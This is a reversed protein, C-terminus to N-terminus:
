TLVIRYTLSPFFYLNGPTGTKTIACWLVGKTSSGLLANIPQLADRRWSASAGSQITKSAITTTAGAGLGVAIVDVQWKHSASLATGGTAVHYVADLDELWVDSGFPVAASRLSVISSSAPRNSIENPFDAVFLQSSLWRAGDFFFWMGLDTRYWIDNADPATPFAGSGLFAPNTVGIDVPSSIGVNIPSTLSLSSTNVGGTLTGNETPAQRGSRVDPATGVPLSALLSRLQAYDDPIPSLASAGRELDRLYEDTM